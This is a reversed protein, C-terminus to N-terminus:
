TYIVRGKKRGGRGQRVDSEAAEEMNCGFMRVYLGLLFPRSWEPLEREHMRGWIRSLARLPLAKYARVALPDPGRGEAEARRREYVRALHLTGIVSFGAWLPLPHRRAYRLAKSVNFFSM